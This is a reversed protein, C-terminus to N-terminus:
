SDRLCNSRFTPDCERVTKLRGCNVLQVEVGSAQARSLGGIVNDNEIAVRRAAQRSIVDANELREKIGVANDRYAKSRRPCLYQAAEEPPSLMVHALVREQAAQSM